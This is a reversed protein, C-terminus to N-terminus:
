QMVNVLDDRVSKRLRGDVQQNRYGSQSTLAEQEVETDSLTSSTTAAGCEENHKMPRDNERSSDVTKPSSYQPSEEPQTQLTLDVDPSVAEDRALSEGSTAPDETPTATVSELDDESEDTTTTGNRDAQEQSHDIRDIHDTEDQDASPDIFGLPDFQQGDQTPQEGEVM